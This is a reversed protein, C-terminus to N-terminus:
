FFGKDLHGFVVIRFVRVHHHTSANRQSLQADVVSFRAGGDLLSQLMTREVFKLFCSQFPSNLFGALGFLRHLSGLLGLLADGRPVSIGLLVTALPGQETLAGQRASVSNGM